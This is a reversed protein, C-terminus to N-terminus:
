MSEIQTWKNNAIDFVEAINTFKNKGIGIQGGAVLIFKDNLLAIPANFRGSKMSAMEDYVLNEDIFYTNKLIIDKVLGGVM